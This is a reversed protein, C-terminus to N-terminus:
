ITQGFVKRLWEDLGDCSGVSFCLVLDKDNIHKNITTKLIKNLRSPTTKRQMQDNLFLKLEDPSLIKLNPNERILYTPVIYLHKVNNFLDHFHNKMFHQRLNQAGEYVVVVNEGAIDHAMELAGRIKAPNHAYDTYLNPCIQEFRRYLGPFLNIHEIMEQLSINVIIYLISIAQWANRRNINGKLRILNISPDHDNIIKTNENIQSFFLTKNSQWIVRYMSKMMFDQFAEIYSDETPYTDPHDWEIGTIAAIYPEFSLFNRDYEDAEYVFYQSKPHLSAMDEYNMSAGVSYSVPINLMKFLWITMATTTTKGHSGSIAILKLHNIEIIYKIFKDRKTAMIKHDKCFQLEPSNPQEISIASSYIFWDIRNKTHIKSISDYTQAIIINKIGKEQLKGIYSSYHKDSGSVDYGMQLAITSLPGIGAGGIGSFFFHMATLTDIAIYKSHRQLSFPNYDQFSLNKIM